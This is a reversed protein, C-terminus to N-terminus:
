RTQECLFSDSRRSFVVVVVFVCWSDLITLIQRRSKHQPHWHKYLMFRWHTYSQRAKVALLTRHKLQSNLPYKSM